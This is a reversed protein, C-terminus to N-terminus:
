RGWAGTGPRAATHLDKLAVKTGKGKKKSSSKVAAAASAAREVARREEARHADTVMKHTSCGECKEASPGNLLGCMACEWSARSAAESAAAALAEPPAWGKASPDNTGGHAELYATHQALLEDRRTADPCIAMLASTHQLLGMDALLNHFQAASMDGKQWAASHKRFAAFQSPSLAAQVNAPSTLRHATGAYVLWLAIAREFLGCSVSVPGLAVAVCTNSSTDACRSPQCWQRTPM